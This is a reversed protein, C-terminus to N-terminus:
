PLPLYSYCLLQVLGLPPHTPLTSWTWPGLPLHCDCPLGQPRRLSTKGVTASALRPLAFAPTSAFRHSRSGFIVSAFCRSQPSLGKLWYAFYPFPSSSFHLENLTRVPPFTVIIVWPISIEIAPPTPSFTRPELRLDKSKKIYISKM